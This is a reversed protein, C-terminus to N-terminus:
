GIMLAEIVDGMEKSDFDLDSRECCWVSLIDGNQDQEIRAEAVVFRAVPFRATKRCVLM